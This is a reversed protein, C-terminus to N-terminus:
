DRGIVPDLKNKRAMAVLDTGYKELAEYSAEPNASTVRQNGRVETLVKLMRDHTVNFQKLIKGAGGADEALALCLHEVSVYEDKLRKAEGAAKELLQQFRQTIYIKGAEAGPGSVSPRKQLDQEVARRLPEVQLDMRKLLRPLLGEEQEILALLLHEGDVEQ